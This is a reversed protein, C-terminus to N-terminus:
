NSNGGLREELYSELWPFIEAVAVSHVAFAQISAEQYSDVLTDIWERLIRDAEDQAVDVQLDLNEGLILTCVLLGLAADANRTAHPRLCDAAAAVQGTTLLARALPSAAEPHDVLLNGITDSAEAPHFAAVALLAEPDVPGLFAAERSFKRAGDLDGRGAALRCLGLLPRVAAQTSANGRALALSDTFAAEADETRAVTELLFGRRLHWAASPNVSGAHDDLWALSRAPDEHLGQSVLAAFEGGWHRGNLDGLTTVEASDLREAAATATERWLSEDEWFRAIELIKFWCYFDEPNQQLSQRLLKLDRTKKNRDAAVERVYGLHDVVGDLHHMALGERQLMVQVSISPDEHIRHEFRIGPDSRFLRLLPALRHSGGPIENRMMVTAAGAQDDALLARIQEALRPTVREDADLFMIWRGTAPALSANRAAAFDDNWTYSIVQAGAATLIEATRDTSGTDVAIFEDWLGTVSTLFDPLMEQEDRVIMCLSLEPRAM